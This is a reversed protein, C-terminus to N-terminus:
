RIASCGATQRIRSALEPARRRVTRDCRLPGFAKGAGADVLAGARLNRAAARDASPRACACLDCSSNASTRGPRSCRCSRRRRADLGDVFTELGTIKGAGGGARGRPRIGRQAGYPGLRHLRAAELAEARDRINRPGPVTDCYDAIMGCVSVRGHDKLVRSRPKSNNAASTTSIFTSGARPRAACNSPARQRTRRRDRRRFATEDRSDQRERELTHQRHRARRATEGVARRDSGVAGAASSIFVTEKPKVDDIVFLGVYATFGPM